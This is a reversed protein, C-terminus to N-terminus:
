RREGAVGGLQLEFCAFAGKRFQVTGAQRYGLGAYLRLANPNAIFADLRIARYGRRTAERELGAMISRGVGRGGHAPAVMLRHVVGIPGDTWTWRVEAYEPSQREDLTACGIIAGGDAERMVFLNGRRADDQFADATPYVDDWQDIDAARMRAICAAVMEMILPVDAAEALELSM